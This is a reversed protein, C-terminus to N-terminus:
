PTALHYPATRCFSCKDTRNRGEGGYRKNPLRSSFAAPKLPLKLLRFVLSHDPSVRGSGASPIPEPQNMNMVHLLVQSLTVTREETRPPTVVAFVEADIALSWRSRFLTTYPFLTSRPPRRIMLFFFLRVNPINGALRFQM